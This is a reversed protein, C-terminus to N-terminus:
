VWFFFFMRFLPKGFINIRKFDAGKALLYKVIRNLGYCCAYLLPTNSFGDLCEIANGDLLLLHELNQLDNRTICEFILHNFDFSNDGIKEDFREM